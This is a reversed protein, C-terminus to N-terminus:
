ILDREQLGSPGTFKNSLPNRAACNEQGRCSQIYKQAASHYQSKKDANCKMTHTPYLSPRPLGLITTRVCFVLFVFGCLTAQMNVQKCKTEKMKGRSSGREMATTTDVWGTANPYSLLLTHRRTWVAIPAMMEM